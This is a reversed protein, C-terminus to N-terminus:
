VMEEHEAGGGAMMLGIQERTADKADLIGMLRGDFLVGIRDSMLMVEDLELSILLVAM